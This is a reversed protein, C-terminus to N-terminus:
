APLSVSDFVVSTQSSGALMPNGQHHDFKVMVMGKPRFRRKTEKVLLKESANASMSHSHRSRPGPTSRKSTWGGGGSRPPLPRPVGRAGSHPGCRFYQVCTSGTPFPHAIVSGTVRAGLRFSLLWSSAMQALLFDLEQQQEVVARRDVLEVRLATASSQTQTRQWDRFLEFLAEPTAETAWGTIRGGVRHGHISRDIHERCRDRERDWCECRGLDPHTNGEV